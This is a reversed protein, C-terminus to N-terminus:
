IKLGTISQIHSGKGIFACSQKIVKHGTAAPKKKIIEPISIRVESYEELDLRSIGNVNYLRCNDTM